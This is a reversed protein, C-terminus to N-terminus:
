WKELKECIREYIEVDEKDDEIAVGVNQMICNIYSKEEKTFRVM